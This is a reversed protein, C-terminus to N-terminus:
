CSKLHIMNGGKPGCPRQGMAQPPPCEAKKSGCFQQALTKPAPWNERKLDCAKQGPNQPPPCEQKPSCGQQASCPDPLSEDKKQEEKSQCIKACPGSEEESNSEKPLPNAMILDILFPRDYAM